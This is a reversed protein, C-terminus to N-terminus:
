ATLRRPLQQQRIPTELQRQDRGQGCGGDRVAEAELALAVDRRPEVGVQPDDVELRVAHDPALVQEVAVREADVLPLLDAAPRDLRQDPAPFWALTLEDSWLFLSRGNMPLTPAASPPARQLGMGRSRRTSGRLRPLCTMWGAGSS